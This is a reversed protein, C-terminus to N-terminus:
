AQELTCKFIIGGYGDTWAAGEVTLRYTDTPLDETIRYVGPGLLIPQKSTDIFNARDVPQLKLKSDVIVGPTSYIREITFRQRPNLRIYNTESNWNNWKWEVRLFEILAETLETQELDM